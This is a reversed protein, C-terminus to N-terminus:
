RTADIQDLLLLAARTRKMAVRRYADIEQVAM